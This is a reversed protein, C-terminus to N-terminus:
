GGYSREELRVPLARAVLYRYDVGSGQGGM